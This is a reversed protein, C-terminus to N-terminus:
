FRKGTIKGDETFLSIGDAFTSISHALVKSVKFLNEVDAVPLSAFTLIHKKPFLIVHGPNAPNIELVALYNSDEYVKTTQIKGEVMLCFPCQPAQDYKALIENLKEEREDEPLTQLYEQIQELEEKSLKPPM